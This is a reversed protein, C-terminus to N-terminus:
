SHFTPSPTTTYLNFNLHPQPFAAVVLKIGWVRQIRFLCPPPETFELLVLSHLGGPIRPSLPPKRQMCQSSTDLSVSASRCLFPPRLRPFSRSDSVKRTSCHGGPSRYSGLFSLLHHKCELFRTRQVRLSPAKTTLPTTHLHLHSTFPSSPSSSASLPAGPASCHISVKSRRPYLCHFVGGPTLFAGIM